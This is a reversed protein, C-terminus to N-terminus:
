CTIAPCTSIGFKNSTTLKTYLEEAPKLTDRLYNIRKTDDTIAKYIVQKAKYDKDAAAIEEPTGPTVGKSLSDCTEGDLKVNNAAVLNRKEICYLEKSGQQCALVCATNITDVNVDGGGFANVRDWLNGWGTSFGYILFVLVVLGLVIAIITGLTMQQGNKNNM